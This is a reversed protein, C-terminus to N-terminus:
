LPEIKLIEIDVIRTGNENYIQKVTVKIKDYKPTPFNMLESINLFGFAKALLAIHRTSYKHNEKINEVNGVFSKTLGMKLSLKEQSIEKEMRLRKIHNIFDYDFQTTEFVFTKEM